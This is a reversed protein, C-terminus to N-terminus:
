TLPYKLLLVETVPVSIDDVTFTGKSICSSYFRHQLGNDERFSLFDRVEGFSEPSRGVDNTLKGGGEAVSFM